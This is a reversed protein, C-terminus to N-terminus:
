LLGQTCEPFGPIIGLLNSLAAGIVIPHVKALTNMEGGDMAVNAGHIIALLFGKTWAGGLDCGKLGGGTINDCVLAFLHLPPCFM